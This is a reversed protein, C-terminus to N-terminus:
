EFVDVGRRLRRRFTLYLVGPPQKATERNQILWFALSVRM